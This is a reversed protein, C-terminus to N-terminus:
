YKLGLARATFEVLPSLKRCAASFDRMLTASCVQAESLAVLAIYDKRKLDEICPHGADFGKPPRTLSDGALELKGRARSWAKPEGVIASRIRTLTPTEPHWVGGGVFCGGPEMHFYFLPAHVDKGKEHRFSIGVHSKYPAGDPSFRTDRYIRFLSGRTPRADAVFHPSLKELHPAFGSIFTMAPGVIVSHYREKNRAFWDRNNNRKLQRLFTFVEPSFIATAPM